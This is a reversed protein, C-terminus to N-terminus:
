YSALLDVHLEDPELVKFPEGYDSGVIRGLASSMDRIRKEIGSNEFQSVHSYIAKIKKEITKDIPVVVNPSATAGLAVFPRESEVPVSSLYYPVSFFMIASLAASGTNTHDPHAEYPLYPDLSVVVDPQYSRAIGVFDYTLEKPSPVESDIYELFQVDEVGLVKMANLEEKKRLAMIEEAPLGLKSLSKRDDSVVVVKVKTGKEVASALYGGAAIEIDDPHPGFALIRKAQQLKAAKEEDLRISEIYRKLKESDVRRM